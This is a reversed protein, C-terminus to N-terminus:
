AVFVFAIVKGPWLKCYRVISVWPRIHIEIALEDPVLLM